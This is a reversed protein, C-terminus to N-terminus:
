KDTKKNSAKSEQKNIFETITTNVKKELNKNNDPKNKISELRLREKFRIKEEHRIKDNFRAVKLIKYYVDIKSKYVSVGIITFIAFIITLILFITSTQITKAAEKLGSTSAASASSLTNSLYCIFFIIFLIAPIFAIICYKKRARNYLSEAEKTEVEDMLTVNKINLNM